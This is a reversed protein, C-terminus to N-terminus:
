HIGPGASSSQETICTYGMYHSHKSIKDKKVGDMSATNDIMVSSAEMSLVEMESLFFRLGLVQRLAHVAGMLETDRTSLVVSSELKSRWAVPNKGFRILYGFYSKKTLPGNAFSADVMCTIKPEGHGRRYTLVCKEQTDILYWCLRVVHKIVAKTQKSGTFRAVIAATHSADPRVHLIIWAALGLLKRSDFEDYPVLPNGDEFSAPEHIDKHHLAMPTRVKRVDANTSKVEQPEERVLKEKTCFKGRKVARPGMSNLLDELKKYHKPTRFTLIGKQQDLRM